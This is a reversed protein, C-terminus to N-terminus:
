LTINGGILQLELDTMQQGLYINALELDTCMQGMLKIEEHLTPKPESLEVYEYWIVQKELDAYLKLAYGNRDYPREPLADIAMVEVGEPLFEWITAENRENATVYYVQEITENM